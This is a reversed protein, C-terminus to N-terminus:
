TPLAPLAPDHRCEREASRAQAAEGRALRRDLKRHLVVIREDLLRIMEARVRDLRAQAKTVASAVTGRPEPGLSEEMLATGRARRLM